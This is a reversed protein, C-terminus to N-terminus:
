DNGCFYRTMWMKDKMNIDNNYGIYSCIPSINFQTPLNKNQNIDCTPPKHLEGDSDDVMLEDITMLSLNSNITSDDHVDMLENITMPTFDPTVSSPDRDTIKEDNNYYAVEDDVEDDMYEMSEDDTCEMSIDYEMNNYHPNFINQNFLPFSNDSM